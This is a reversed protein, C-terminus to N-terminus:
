GPPRPRLDVLVIEHVTAGHLHVVGGDPLRDGVRNGILGGEAVAIDGSCPSFVVLPCRSYRLREGLGTKAGVGFDTEVHVVAVLVHLGMERCELHPAHHDVDVVSVEAIFEPVQEVVGVCFSEYKVRRQSLPDGLDDVAQRVHLQQDLDVVPDARSRNGARHRPIRHHRAVVRHRADGPGFVVDVHEVGAAGGPHGLTDHIRDAPHHGRERLAAEWEEAEFRWRLGIADRLQHTLHGVGAREHHGYGARREHVARAQPEPREDGLERAGVHDGEGVAAEVGVLNEPKDLTM